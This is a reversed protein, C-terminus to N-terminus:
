VVSKRDTENQDKTITANEHMGFVEPGSVLPLSECFQLMSDYNTDEPVTYLGSESFPTGGKLNTERYCINLICHLARRDKDDTVRGGYNCEGATYKLAKWPVADNEDLFIQIQKASIELDSDNFEYPINWGIPGYLRREQIVCHFFCLAFLLKRFEVPKTACSEFFEVDAIPDKMYSGLLNLKLGKPPEVTMKVGNQLISVPFVDSPYTTCWLRFHAHCMEPTLSEAVAELTTMWSSMLHCNQLVVWSGEARAKEIMAVAIPGQGQGLSIPSVERKLSDALKLLGAMPDSGKSLIFVLPIVCDSEDFCLQLDFAPPKVFPEGLAGIVFNQVALMVKDPRICRLVCLKELATLDRQWHGPLPQDQPTSSDYIAQWSDLSTVFEERFGRLASLDSLRCLEGWQREGLWASAPNPPLEGMSVGGTLLFTWETKDIKGQGGMIRIALLFAFILKDKELLSRCINNYLSYQFHNELNTLREQLDRSKESNKISAVYLKAFWSLSYQYTPEINALDAICFFLIQIKFAISTYGRRVDDIEKETLAGAEQAEKIEESKVKSAKLTDIATESELINGEGSLIALIGDEIDKLARMNSAGELVLREKQEQLDPRETAVTLGLLQDQLGEPTIMFNLLTIKVSIEPLYHPNRLKTTIYFSFAPNWEVTDDGIRVCMAGGQKFLQKLLVPELSADLTEGVNELLVPTGFQVSNILTRLYNDDTLKVITLGNDKEMTRIWANAQGQPDIMLPWRRANFVIIGNDVSFDDTPLGEINWQRIRVPDGLTASLTPNASRPINLKEVLKVWTELQEGRFLATFPGLYAMVGASVLVDGTLNIYKEGLERAFETWRVKEGGLGGILQEARDLKKGCM